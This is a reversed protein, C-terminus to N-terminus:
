YKIIYRFGSISTDMPLNPTYINGIQVVLNEFLANGDINAGDCNLWGYPPATSTSDLYYIISGIL